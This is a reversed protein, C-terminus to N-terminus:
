GAFVSNKAFEPYRSYVDRLLAGFNQSTIARKVEYVHQAIAGGSQEILDIAHTVGKETLRYRGWTYGRVELREALGALVLRDADSRLEFSYPGYHYPQFRYREAPPIVAEQSLLFIGKQIRVPDLASGGEGKYALLLILWDRKKV